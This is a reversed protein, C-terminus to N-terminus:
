DLSPVSLSLPRPACSPPRGTQGTGRAGTPALAEVTPPLPSPILFHWLAVPVGLHRLTLLTNLRITEARVRCDARARTLRDHLTAAASSGAKRGVAPLLTPPETRYFFFSGTPAHALVGLWHDLTRIEEETEALLQHAQALLRSAHEQWAAPLLLGRPLTHPSAPPHSAHSRRPM